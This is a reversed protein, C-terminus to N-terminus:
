CRDLRDGQERPLPGVQGDLLDGPQRGPPPVVAELDGAGPLVQIHPARGLVVRVDPAPRVDEVPVAQLHPRQGVVEGTLRDAVVGDVEPVLRDQPGPDPAVPIGLADARTGRLFESVAFTARLSPTSTTVPKV